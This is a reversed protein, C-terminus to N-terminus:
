NGVMPPNKRGHKEMAIMAPKWNDGFAEPSSSQGIRQHKDM